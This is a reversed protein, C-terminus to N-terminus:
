LHALPRRGLWVVPSSNSTLFLHTIKHNLTLEAACSKIRLHRCYRFSSRASTNSSALCSSKLGLPDTLAECKEAPCALTTLPYIQLTNQSLLTDLGPRKKDVEYKNNEKGSGLMPPQNWRMALCGECDM